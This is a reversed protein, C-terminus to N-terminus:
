WQYHFGVTISRGIGPLFTPQVPMSRGRIVYSSQYIEDLLNEVSAYVKLKSSVAWDLDLNVLTYSDQYQSNMHDAPAEEPQWHVSPAITLADNLQLALQWQVLHEPIGAIQNGKYQGEAFYFDSYQYVWRSHISTGQIIWDTQWSTDLGLEIGQHRTEGQYNMTRGNVADDSVVSMLEDDIVSRYVSVDWHWNQWKGKGGLELTDATQKTLQASFFSTAAPNAPSVSASLLEWFTPAESSKSFNAYIYSDSLQYNLGVRPNWTTYTNDQSWQSNDPVEINRTQYSNQLTLDLTLRSNLMPQYSLTTVRSAAEIETAEMLAFKEGTQPSNSYFDRNMDSRNYYLSFILDENDFLYNGQHQWRYHAGWDNSDTVNHVLPNTFTDDLQQVYLGFQHHSQNNFYDIRDAIRVLESDRYPQRKYVNLLQDFPTNGDGLVSEPSSIAMAKPVVFPIEFESEVYDLTIQNQLTETLQSHFISSIATRESDSNKRYGEYSDHSVDFRLGHDQWSTSQGWHLGLREDSGGEIRVESPSEASKRIFNIAGGLSSSGYALGNAGRYVAANSSSKADLLGIVFSGDAQNFTIGNQLLQVGRNVPNSQIGSGRINLRPQDNGGFFSQVMVGPEFGLADKLTAQRALQKEFNVFNTGGAVLKLEESLEESTPYVQGNREGKVEIREDIFNSTFAYAFSPAALSLTLCSLLYSSKFTMAAFGCLSHFPQLSLLHSHNETAIGM